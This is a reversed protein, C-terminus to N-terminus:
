VKKLKKVQYMRQDALVLLEESSSATDEGAVVIGLSARLVYPKGSEATMSELNKRIREGVQEADKRGCDGLVAVIEDGGYRFVADDAGVSARVTQAVARICADGEEHGYTDNVTKLDDVDLFCLSFGYRGALFRDFANDLVQLGSRKNLLGTMEDTTAYRKLVAEAERLRTIDSLGLLVTSKDDFRILNSSLLVVLSLNEQNKLVAELNEVAEGSLLQDRFSQLNGQKLDLMHQLDVDAPEMDRVGLIQRALHNLKTIRMESGDMLLMAAPATEFLKELNERGTEIEAMGKEIQKQAPRFILIAELFLMLFTAGLLLLELLRTDAVRQKSEADYRFVIADMGTLFDAENEQITRIGDAMANRDTLSGDAAALVDGAAAVIADFRPQIQAFMATVVADNNGPLGLDADGNQLGRHSEVWLDLASTLEIRYREADTSDTAFYLGFAAKNIRQSLMRQRGAINVIRSDDQQSILSTQIVTQSFLVLIAILSLALTYRRLLMRGTRQSNSRQEMSM